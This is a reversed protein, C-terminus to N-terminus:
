AFLRGVSDVSGGGLSGIAGLGEDAGGAIGDAEAASAIADVLEVDIGTRFTLGPHGFREFDGRLDESLLHFRNLTVVGHTSILLVREVALERLREAVRGYSELTSRVHAERGQAIQPLLIPPHPVVAGLSM